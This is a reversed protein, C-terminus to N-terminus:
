PIRLTYVQEELINFLNETEKYKGPPDGRAKCANKCLDDIWNFFEYSSEPKRLL